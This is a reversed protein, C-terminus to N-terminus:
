RRDGLLTAAGIRISLWALVASLAFAVMSLASGYGFRLNRL